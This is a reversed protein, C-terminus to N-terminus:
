HYVAAFIWFVVRECIHRGDAVCGCDAAPVFYDAGGARKPVVQCFKGNGSSVRNSLFSIRCPTLHFMDNNSDM